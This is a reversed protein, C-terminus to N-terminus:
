QTATWTYGFTAQRGQITNGAASPISVGLTFYDITSATQAGTNIAAAASTYTTTFHTLTHIPDLNTTDCAAAGGATTVPAVLGLNTLGTGTFTAVASTGAQATDGKNKKSSIYLLNDDGVKFVANSFAGIGNLTTTLTAATAGTVNVTQPAIVSGDLTFGLTQNMTLPFVIAVNGNAMGYAGRGYRCATATGGSNTQQVYTQVTGCMSGTGHYAEATDADACAGNGSIVMGTNADVTGVNQIQMTVTSVDGPKKTALTFAAGCTTNANTDTNVNNTATTGSSLCATGNNVKDSLVLTGSAFTSGANTTSANFTAFTGAGFASGALSVLLVALLLKRVTTVPVTDARFAWIWIAAGPPEGNSRILLLHSTM